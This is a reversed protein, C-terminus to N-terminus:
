SRKEKERVLWFEPLGFVRDSGSKRASESGSMCSNSYCSCLARRKVSVNLLTVTVKTISASFKTSKHIYIHYNSKRNVNSLKMKMKEIHSVSSNVFMKCDIRIEFLCSKFRKPKMIPMMGHM